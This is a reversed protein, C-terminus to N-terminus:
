WQLAQYNELVTCINLFHQTTHLELNSADTSISSSQLLLKRVSVSIVSGRASSSSSSATAALPGRSRRLLKESFM